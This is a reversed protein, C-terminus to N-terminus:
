LESVVCVVASEFSAVADTENDYSDFVTYLKTLQLLEHFKKDNHRKGRRSGPDTGRTLVGLKEGHM